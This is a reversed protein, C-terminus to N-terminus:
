RATVVCSSPLLEQYVALDRKPVYAFSLSDCRFFAFNGVEYVNEGVVVSTLNKAYAFATKGIVKVTTPIEYYTKQRGAPYCLLFTGDKSLLIGESSLFAPNQPSVTIEELKLCGYFPNGGIAKVSEPLYVGRLTEANIVANEGIEEVTPPLILRERECAPPFLLLTKKKKDYLVGKDATYEQHFPSVLIRKLARALLLANKQLLTKRGLAISELKENEYFASSSVTRCNSPVRYSVAEKGAPYSLLTAGTKDFLVGGDSSYNQNGKDVVISKLMKCSSFAREGIEKVSAPIVIEELAFCGFFAEAGIRELGGPLVIRGTLATNSFAKEGIFKLDSPLSIRELSSCDFFAKEEISLLSDPLSVERVVGSKYFASERIASIGDPVLVRGGKGQYRVVAHDEVSFDALMRERKERPSLVRSREENEELTESPLYPVLDIGCNPCFQEGTLPAGCEPCYKM